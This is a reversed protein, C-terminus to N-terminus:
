EDWLPNIQGERSDLSFQSKKPSYFFMILTNCHWNQAKEKLVSVVETNTKYLGLNGHFFESYGSFVMSPFTSAMHLPGLRHSLMHTHSSVLSVLYMLYTLSPSLWSTPGWVWCGSSVDRPDTVLWRSKQFVFRHAFPFSLKLGSLQLTTRICCCLVLISEWHLRQSEMMEMRQSLQLPLKRWLWSSCLLMINQIIEAERVM